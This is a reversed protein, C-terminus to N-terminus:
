HIKKVNYKRYVVSLSNSFEKWPLEIVNKMNVFAIIFMFVNTIAFSAAGGLLGYKLVAFYTIIASFVGSSFTIISLQGTKEKFFYFGALAYYMGVFGYGILFWLVFDMSQLFNEGIFYSFILKLFIYAPLIIILFSFFVVYTVGVAFLRNDKSNDSLLEYLWPGYAKAFADAFIALIMAMQLSVMYIGLADKGVLNGILFRDIMSILAAGLTHPILPVGFKLSHILDSRKAVLNLDNNKFLLLLSLVSFSFAALAIGMARGEWSAAIIFIFFLSLLANCTTLSIKLMGYKLAEKRVQWLALKINTIFQTAAVFCALLLWEKSLLTFTLLVKDFSVIILIILTSFLLVVLAAGIYDALEKKTVKFFRVSVAGHVSLGTLASLLTVTLTFMTILGYDAPTLVRTLLPLLLFPVAANIVNAVLYIVGNSLTKQNM